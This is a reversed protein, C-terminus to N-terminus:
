VTVYIFSYIYIFVTLSLEDASYKLKKLYKHAFAGQQIHEFSTM